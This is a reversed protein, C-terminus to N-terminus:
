TESQYAPTNDAVRKSRKYGNICERCWSNLKLKTKSSPPFQDFDLVRRCKSCEKRHGPEDVFLKPRPPRAKPYEGMRQELLTKRRHCLACIVRCRALEKRLTSEKFNKLQCIDKFKNGADIHDFQMNCPDYTEGCMYCPQAKAENIIEINRQAYKSYKKIPHKEDLRRQTRRNHCLVCVLECKEIEALIEEKPSNHMVMEAVAGKKDRLHDYDMCMPEYVMGCDKCPQNAKLRRFWRVRDRRRKKFRNPDLEERDYRNKCSRCWAHHGTPSSPMKNFCSPPQAKKCRACTLEAAKPKPRQKYRERYERQCEKCCTQLGDSTSKHKAFESPEKTCNCKTCTKM